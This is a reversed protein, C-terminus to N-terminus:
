SRPLRGDSDVVGGCGGALLLVLEECAVLLKVISQGDHLNAIKRNVYKHRQFNFRVILLGTAVKNASPSTTIECALLLINLVIQTGRIFAHM